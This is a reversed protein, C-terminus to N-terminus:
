TPADEARLTRGRELHSSTSTRPVSGTRPFVTLPEGSCVADTTQPLNRCATVACETQSDARADATVPTEFCSFVHCDKRGRRSTDCDRRSSDTNTSGVESNLFSGHVDACAPSTSTGGNRVESKAADKAAIRQRLLAMREASTLKASTATTPSVRVSPTPSPNATNGASTSATAALAHIPSDGIVPPANAQAPPPAVFHRGNVPDVSRSRAGPSPHTQARQSRRSQAARGSSDTCIHRRRSPRQSTVGSRKRKVASPNDSTRAQTQSAQAIRPRRAPPAAAATEWENSRLALPLFDGASLSRDYEAKREDTSTVLRKRSLKELHATSDESSTGTPTCSSSALNPSQREQWAETHVETNTDTAAPAASAAKLARTQIGDMGRVVDSAPEDCPAPPPAELPQQTQLLLIGDVGPKQEDTDAPPDDEFLAEVAADISDQDGHQQIGEAHNVHIDWDIDFISESESDSADAGELADGYQGFCFAHHRLIASYIVAMDEDFTGQCCEKNTDVIAGLLNELLDGMWKLPHDDQRYKGCFEKKQNMGRKGPRRFRSRIKAGSNLLLALADNGDAAIGLCREQPRAPLSVPQGVEALVTDEAQTRALVAMRYRPKDPEPFSFPKFSRAIEGAADALQAVAVSPDELQVQQAEKCPQHQTAGASATPAKWWFAPRGVPVDKTPHLGECFFRRMRAVAFTNPAPLCQSKLKQTRSESFSGCKACMIM